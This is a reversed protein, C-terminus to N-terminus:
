GAGKLAENYMAPINSCGPKKITHLYSQM